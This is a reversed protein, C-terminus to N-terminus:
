LKPAPSEECTNGLRMNWGKEYADRMIQFLNQIESRLFPGASQLRREAESLVEWYAVEQYNEMMEM